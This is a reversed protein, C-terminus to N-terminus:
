KSRSVLALTIDIHDLKKGNRNIIFYKGDKKVYAQGNSFSSAREYQFPIVENGDQDLYGFLGNRKACLLGEDFIVLTKASNRIDGGLHEYTKGNLLIKMKEEGDVDYKGLYCFTNGSFRSKVMFMDDPGNFDSHRLVIKGKKDVLVSKDNLSFLVLGNVIGNLYQRYYKLPIVVKGTRDIYGAGSANRVFYLGEDYEYSIETYQAPVIIKRNLDMLGKLGNKGYVLYGTEVDYDHYEYQGPEFNKANKYLIVGWKDKDYDVYAIHDSELGSSLSHKITCPIVFKRAYIDYVGWNKKKRVPIYAKGGNVFNSAVGLQDFEGMPILWQGNRGYLGVQETKRDMVINEQGATGLFSFPDMDMNDPSAYQFPLITKGALNTTGWGGRKYGSIRNNETDVSITSEEKSGYEASLIEKGAADLLGWKEGIRVEFFNSYENQRLDDYKKGNINKGKLNAIFSKEPNGSITVVLLDNKTFYIDSFETTLLVKKAVPDYLGYKGDKKVICAKGSKHISGYKLDEPLVKEMKENFLIDEGTTMYGLVFGQAPKWVTQFKGDLIPEGNPNFHEWTKKFVTSYGEDGAKAFLYDFAILTKNKLDIIGWKAGKAAAATGTKKFDALYDYELPIIMEGKENVAGFKNNLYVRAVGNTFPYVFDYKAPVVMKGLTDILGYMGKIQVQAHGCDYFASAKQYQFPTIARADKVDQGYIYEYYGLMGNNGIVLRRNFNAYEVEEQSQVITTLFILSLSFLFVRKM